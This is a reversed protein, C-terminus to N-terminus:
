HIGYREKMLASATRNIARELHHNYTRAHIPGHGEFVLHLLEHILTEEKARGHRAIGVEATLEESSWVCWGQEKCRDWRATITWERLNLREQWYALHEQLDLLTM